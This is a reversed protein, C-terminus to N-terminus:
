LTQSSGSNRQGEVFNLLEDVLRGHSGPEIETLEEETLKVKSVTKVMLQRVQDATPVYPGDKQCDMYAEIQADEELSQFMETLESQSTAKCPTPEAPIRYPGSEYFCKKVSFSRIQFKDLVMKVLTAWSAVGGDSFVVAELM